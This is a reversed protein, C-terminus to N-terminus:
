SEGKQGLDRGNKNEEKREDRGKEREKTTSGAKSIATSQRAATQQKSQDDTQKVTCQKVREQPILEFVEVIKEHSSSRACGSM